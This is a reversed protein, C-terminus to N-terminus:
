LSILQYVTKLVGNLTMRQHRLRAQLVNKKASPVNLPRIRGNIDQIIDQHIIDNIDQNETARGNL